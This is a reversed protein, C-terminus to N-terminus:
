LLSWLRVGSKWCSRPGHEGALLTDATHQGIRMEYPMTYRLNHMKVMQLANQDDFGRRSSGVAVTDIWRCERKSDTYARQTEGLLCAKQTNVSERVLQNKNNEPIKQIKHKQLSPPPYHTSISSSSAIYTKEPHCDTRQKIILEKDLTQILNMKFVDGFIDIDEQRQHGGRQNQNEREKSKHISETIFVNFSYATQDARQKTNQTESHSRPSTGVRM